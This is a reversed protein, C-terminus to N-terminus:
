NRPNADVTIVGYHVKIAGHLDDCTQQFLASMADGFRCAITVMSLDLPAISKPRNLMSGGIFRDAESRWCSFDLKIGLMCLLLLVMIFLNTSCANTCVPLSLDRTPVVLM